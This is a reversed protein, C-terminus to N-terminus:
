KIFEEAQNIINDLEDEPMGELKRHTHEHKETFKGKAQWIMRIANTANADLQIPSLKGKGKRFIITRLREALKEDTLGKENLVAELTIAVHPRSLISKVSKANIDRRGDIVDSITQREKTNLHKM